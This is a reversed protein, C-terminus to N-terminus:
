NEKKNKLAVIILAIIVLFNQSLASAINGSIQIFNEGLSTLVKNNNSFYGIYSLLQIAFLVLSLKLGKLNKSYKYTKIFLYFYIISVVIFIFINM